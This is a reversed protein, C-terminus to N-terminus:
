PCGRIVVFSVFLEFSVFLVFRCPPLLVAMLNRSFGSAAPAPIRGCAEVNLRLRIKGDHNRIM